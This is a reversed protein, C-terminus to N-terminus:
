EASKVDIRHVKDREEASKPLTIKLVGKKYEAQIGDRDVTAAIPIRREFSGYAREMLHYGKGSQEEEDKQERQLSKEGRITLASGDYSLQFDKEELGPLEATVEIHDKTEVVDIAPVMWRDGHALLDAKPWDKHFDEFLQDISRRLSEVPMPKDSFLSPLFNRM